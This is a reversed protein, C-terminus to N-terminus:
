SGITDVADLDIMTSTAAKYKTGLWTITVTHSGYALLGSKWVAQQYATTKNYLDVTVATGGDLSVSMRGYGTGKTAIINIMVGTFTYSVTSAANVTAMSGGSYAGTVTAWGTLTLSGQEVRATAKLSGVVDIADINVYKGTTGTVASFAVKVRHIGSSVSKTYVAQQYLTTSSYLDVVQAAGDVTVSMKGMATSKTSIITLSTGTFEFYASTGSGGRIYTGGSASTSSVSGWGGSYAIGSATQEYRAVPITYTFTTTGSPGGIATVRVQVGGESAAAPAVATIKTTSNVTYSQAATGGFTVATVDYFGSGNITVSTGGTTPGSSPSISSIVPSGVYLYDDASTDPSEGGATVVKVRVSGAAGAPVTATIQTSSVRTYGTAASGGFSVSLIDDFRAGSITVTNGGAIAGYAPSVGSISPTTVPVGTTYAKLCVNASSMFATTIDSWSTVSGSSIYSQGPASTANNSYGSYAAEFAVPYTTGPSTVKVAVVFPQGATLSLPTALTVTHFGMYAMTGSTNLTLSGLAPGTYVAYTTSPTLTYFGVAAVSDSARATFVNAFAATNSGYGVSSVNGLPDYQYIDNYNDVPEASDFSVTLDNTGFSSDYYSAWFYGANGWSTGWSNRVLFAGNGPAATAFNTAPYNDDWGVIVVAHNLVGSGYYYYASNATSFYQSGFDYYMTTYLGGNAMVATKINDNDTASAREPIWDVNQVHKHAVGTVTNTPTPYPDETEYLPGSWRTLYATSMYMQGGSNYLDPYSFGSKSVLNDESFDTVEGLTLYPQIYSEFSGFTAFAWCTGYSGQNKVPTLRVGRLDYSTPLATLAAAASTKVKMGKTFSLDQPSPRLGGSKKLAGSNLAPAKAFLQSAVFAKSLPAASPKAAPKSDVGLAIGASLALLLVLVLASFAVPRFFTQRHRSPSVGQSGSRGWWRSM